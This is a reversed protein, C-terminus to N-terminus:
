VLRLELELANSGRIKSRFVIAFVQHMYVQAHQCVYVFKVVVVVVVLMDTLTIKELHIM